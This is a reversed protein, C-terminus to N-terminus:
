ITDDMPTLLAVIVTDGLGIKSVVPLIVTWTSIGTAPFKQNRGVNEAPLVTETSVVSNVSRGGRTCTCAIPGGRGGGGGGGAGGLGGDGGGGGTGAGAGAPAAEAVKRAAGAPRGEAEPGGCWGGGGPAGAAM